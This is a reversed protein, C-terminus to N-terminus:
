TGYCVFYSFFIHLKYKWWVCMMYFLLQFYDEMSFVRLIYIQSDSSNWERVDCVFQTEPPYFKKAVAVQHFHQQVAKSWPMFELLILVLALIFQLSILITRELLITFIHKTVLLSLAIVQAANRLTPNWCKLHQTCLAASCLEWYCLGTVQAHSNSGEMRYFRSSYFM